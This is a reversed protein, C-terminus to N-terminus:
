KTTAHRDICWATLRRWEDKDKLSSIHKVWRIDEEALPSGRAQYDQKLWQLHHRVYKDFIENHLLYHGPFLYLGMTDRKSDDNRCFYSSIYWRGGVFAVTEDCLQWGLKKQLGDYLIVLHQPRSNTPQLFLFKSQVMDIPAQTEKLGVSVGPHVGSPHGFSMGVTDGLIIDLMTHVGMGAIVVADAEDPQLVNLGNGIRFQIPLELSKSSKVAGIKSLAVNVQKLSAIGGNELAQSSLDTGFVRSFLFKNCDIPDNEKNEIDRRSQNVWAICALSLALMGHDCGVDAISRMREKKKCPLLILQILPEMREWTRNFSRRNSSTIEMACKAVSMPEAKNFVLNNTAAVRVCERFRDYRNRNRNREYDCTVSIFHNFALYKQTRCSSLIMASTSSSPGLGRLRIAGSVMSFTALSLLLVVILRGGNIMM